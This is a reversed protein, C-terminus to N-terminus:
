NKLTELKAIFQKKFNSFNNNEIAQRIGNMLTQYFYLNHITLLMAALIEKSKYLHRLYARSYNKCTYCHCNPDVPEESSTHIANKINVEGLSTYLKGKRAERTPMVCDFMDIGMEVANLIDIPKGVGMLYRPKNNPLLEVNYQLIDLMCNKPEGVALGGVAYGDFDMDILQLTSQKRLEKVFGGQTIGFIGFGERTIFAEKSQKAWELSRLMSNKIYELSLGYSPCEDLIMTINSNLKHQIEISLKPTLYHKKGDRHSAFIVGDNTIKRIGKLSMIQFGGSDTLISAKWNMFKHLGGYKEILDAGPSIMLHYTNGLIIRYDMEALAEPFAAKITGQTGVPM